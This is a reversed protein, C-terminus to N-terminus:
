RYEVIDALRNMSPTDRAVRARVKEPKAKQVGQSRAEHRADAPVGFVEGLVDGSSQSFSLVLISAGRETMCVVGASSGPLGGGFTAPLTLPGNKGM